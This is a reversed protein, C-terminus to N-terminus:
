PARRRPNRPRKSTRQPAENRPEPGGSPSAEPDSVRQLWRAVARLDSPAAEGIARAMALQAAVSALYLRRIGVPSRSIAKWHLALANADGRRVPGSLADPLGLELVNRAVSELLPGTMAVADRRPVGGRELLRVAADALGATGNALLAAAGHYLPRPLRPFSRPVLGLAAALERARAVARRDGDVLLTAGSFSPAVGKAFSLLPHMQAVPSGSAAVHALAEPGLAGATHVIPTARPLWSAVKAAVDHIQADRVALVCVSFSRAASSRRGGHAARGSLLAVDVGADGLAAALASGVKGAGVVLVHLKSRGAKTPAVRRASM